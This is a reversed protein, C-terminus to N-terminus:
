GVRCWRQFPTTRGDSPLAVVIEDSQLSVILFYMRCNGNGMKAEEQERAREAALVVGVGGGYGYNSELLVQEIRSRRFSEVLVTLLWRDDVEVM